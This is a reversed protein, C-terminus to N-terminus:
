PAIMPLAKIFARSPRPVRRSFMAPKTLDKSVGQRNCTNLMSCPAYRLGPVPPFTSTASDNSSNFETLNYKIVYKKRNQITIKTTFVNFM